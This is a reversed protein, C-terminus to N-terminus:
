LYKITELIVQSRRNGCESCVSPRRKWRIIARRCFYLINHVLSQKLLHGKLSVSFCPSAFFITIYLLYYRLLPLLAFSTAICFLYYCYLPKLTLFIIIHFNYHNKLKLVAADFPCYLCFDKRSQYLTQRSGM